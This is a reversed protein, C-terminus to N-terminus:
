HAQGQADAPRRALAAHAPTRSHAKAPFGSPCVHPWSAPDSITQRQALGGESGRRKLFLVYATRSIVRSKDLREVREDNYLYWQGDRPDKCSATYHGFGYSGSHNAVCRLDFVPEQRQRSSVYPSFDLGSLEADIPVDVKSCRSGTFEFRKLYLVLIQPLKWLDIKKQADVKKKCCECYWQENGTLTESALFADIADGLTRMQHSVPVSMYMFPDFQKSSYNCELCTLCSRLQGQFLDVMCSKDRSLYRVWACAAAYEEADEEELRQPVAAPSGRGGKAINLDEHLGDLMCGLFEQVDQQERDVFLHPARARLSRHIEAPAHVRQEPRTWIERLLSAFSRALRGGTGKSNDPRLEEEYRDSLFHAVLPELHALCQLGTSMFCSNGM